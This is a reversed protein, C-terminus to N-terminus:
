KHPVPVLGVFEGFSNFWAPLKKFKDFYQWTIKKSYSDITSFIGPFIQWSLKFQLILKLWFCGPCYDHLALQGMNKDSIRIPENGIEAHYHSILKRSLHSTPYKELSFL